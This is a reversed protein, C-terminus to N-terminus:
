WLLFTQMHSKSIALPYWLVPGGVEGGEDGGVREWADTCEVAQRSRWADWAKGSIDLPEVQARKRGQGAGGGM